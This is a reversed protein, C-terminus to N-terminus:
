GVHLQGAGRELLAGGYGALVGTLALVHRGRQEPAVRRSACAGEGHEAVVGVRRLHGLAAAVTEHVPNVVINRRFRVAEVFAAASVRLALVIEVSASVAPGHRRVPMANMVVIEPNEREVD